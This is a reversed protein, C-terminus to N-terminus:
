VSFLYDYKKQVRKSNQGDVLTVTKERSNISLFYIGSFWLSLNLNNFESVDYGREKYREVRKKYSNIRNKFRTYNKDETSLSRERDKNQRRSIIQEDISEENIIELVIRELDAETLRIVKKAM